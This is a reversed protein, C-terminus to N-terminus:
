KFVLKPFNRGDMKEAIIKKEFIKFIKITFTRHINLCNQLTNLNERFYLFKEM